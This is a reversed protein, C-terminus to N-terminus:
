QLQLESPVRSKPGVGLLEAGSVRRVLRGWRGRVGLNAVEGGYCTLARDQARRADRDVRQRRWRIEGGCAHRIPAVTRNRLWGKLLTIPEAAYPQEAYFVVPLSGRGRELTLLTAYRHDAHSLPWGPLLVVDAPAVVECLQSWIADPDRAGVYGSDPWPLAVTTAGLERGAAEDERRRVRVAAGQTMEGRTADWYSAPTAAEPDGAFVTAIVVDAGGRTLRRITAGVSLVADDLHPSVVAVKM